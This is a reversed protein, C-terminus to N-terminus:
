PSVHVADWTAQTQTEDAKRLTGSASTASQLQGEFVFGDAASTDMLTLNRGDSTWEWTGPWGTDSPHTLFNSATGNADLTFGAPYFFNPSDFIWSGTAIQFTPCGAFTLLAVGLMTIMAISRKM